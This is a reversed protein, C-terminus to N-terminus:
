AEGAVATTEEVKPKRPPFNLVHIAGTPCAEVCKRCLRCKNHDIYALNQAITIAEFKCEKFCKSCGICANDCAKKAVGGKEKNVCSVYIRRSKPGKKRLEIIMKPCAKVCAGCATCKEEDVEPLGTLPNMKIADFGCSLTCDGMGLCGFSCGTEGGYTAAAIACSTAGDYRNVKPRAECTGNCRVVAVKPESQVATRGLLDAVKLMTENGGVTCFLGDMNEAEVCARAFGSCGPYGCGGCNAGPLVENVQEIRPDEEVHFKKSVVYLLIAALAGVVALFVITVVM